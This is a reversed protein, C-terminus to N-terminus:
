EVFWPSSWAAGGDQQVVRVYVFDGPRLPPVAWRALVERRGEADIRQVVGPGQVVDVRAIPGPAIAQVALETEGRALDALPVVEGMRHGALSARLVIRPGSTAYTRRARLAELVGDRTKEDSQIAALGSSPMMLQALGPHGDHSDGSGLFGLRYGRVLQDRVWNGDVADYIPVPSDPAESSGHVSAIETTPELVPDPPISWDVPVPGGASHHAITLAARGRLAAWLQQPTESKADLSSLVDGTGDFYLVHRHGYIWNTWEFGLITVFRGPAHFRETLERIAQWREPAADLFPTGWHDHDTLAV